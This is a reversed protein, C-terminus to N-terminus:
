PRATSPTNAQKVAISRFRSVAAYRFAPVPASTNSVGGAHWPTKPKPNPDIM